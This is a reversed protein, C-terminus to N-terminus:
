ENKSVPIIILFRFAWKRKITYNKIGANRFITILDKKIFARKVSLPGDFKVYENKSLIRTLLGIGLYAIINRRLDNIVIGTKAAGLFIKLLHIIEDERFHHLFLSSHILDFSEKKFPFDLVDACVIKDNGRKFKQIHCIHPNLDMSYIKISHNYVQIDYLIDSAGGGVDLINITSWTAHKFYNLGSQTVSNGGLFKNIIHLEQHARTVKDDDLSFNDMLENQYSRRFFM